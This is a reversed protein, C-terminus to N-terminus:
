GTKKVDLLTLLVVSIILHQQFKGYDNLKM